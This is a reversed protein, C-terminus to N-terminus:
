LKGIELEAAIALSGGFDNADTAELPTPDNAPYAAATRYPPRPTGGFVASGDFVVVCWVSLFLGYSFLLLRGSEPASCILLKVNSAVTGSASSDM